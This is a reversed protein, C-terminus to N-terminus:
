CVWESQECPTSFRRWPFKACGKAIRSKAISRPFLNRALECARVARLKEANLTSDRVALPEVIVERDYNLAAEHDQRHTAGFLVLKTLKAVFSRSKQRVRAVLIAGFPLKV